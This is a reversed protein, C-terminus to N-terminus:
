GNIVENKPTISYKEGSVQDQNIVKPSTPSDITIKKSKREVEEFIPNAITGSLEFLFESVVQSKIVQDIAVGAAFFVPNASSAIWALVPLSSTLNPKYSLDYHLDGSILNTHGKMFLDGATGKMETNNTTVVGKQLQYDGQISSYFMGDSFIDRFDLTLKRVLSQLSLVSFVRAKDNIDALYGDDLRGSVNGNLQEIDFNHFGGQWNLDLNINAGSDKIISDYDLAQFETEIDEILLDAILSSESEQQNHRWQGSLTLSSKGRKALFDNLVITEQDLRKIKADVEGLNLNDIICSDCHFTIPPINAFINDKYAKTEIITEKHTLTDNEAMNTLEQKRQVMSNVANIAFLSEAAQEATNEKKNALQINLFEANIDMGQTLWDPYIKIQGRTEKANVELRWWDQKDLLNFSLNHLSQEGITLKDVSGRIRKPKPFLRHQPVLNPNKFTDIKPENVSAMIDSILPQWTAFDANALKTTIHFGDSPLAMKGRGLMLNARTFVTNDHDLVGTFQMEDALSVRVNSQAMQGDVKIVLRNVQGINKTYPTPLNFQTSSLDSNLEAQYSFGGQHHQYLSLEGQWDLNGQIYAQLNEPLHSLWNKEQWQSKLKINTDYYDRKDAGQISLQVPLEQWILQLNQTTIKDNKFNLQGFIDNFHMQPTQLRAQNGAFKINGSALAKANDNLPLTLQFDGSVEGSLKLQELVSGVSSQLSSQNMLAAIYDTKTSNIEADVTLISENGLDAIAAKVGTIDLGTLSGSRGTILMSNNTFNLNAFFETIAPWDEAFKFEAESLEADVTFIGSGDTFPFHNIPGNILVQADDIRGSIFAKNLYSILSDSMLPLPLYRGVLSADANSINALLSLHTEEEKPLTVELDASINIVESSLVLDNVALSRHNDNFNASVEASIKQYPFAAVFLENFDLEGQEASFDLALYQNIYSLKGSVNEVGPIGSSYRSNLQSFHSLVQLEGQQKRIFIDKVNGTLQMDVLKKRVSKKVIFLPSLSSLMALDINSVHINYDNGQKSFQSTFDIPQQNNHQWKLPTTFLSSAHTLEDKVLLLQGSQLSLKQPKNALLWHFSSPALNVQVRETDSNKLTLWASFNIDTATDNNNAVLINGLWPTVDIHNAQLFVEGTLSTLSDGFLDVNVQLNNASVGNFVVSGQAQHRQGTNLWQMNSISVSSVALEKKITILSDRISFHKIQNLFLDSIANIDADINADSYQNNNVAKSDDVLHSSWLAESLDIELGSLILDKSILKQQSLTEWFDLQLELQEISVAANESDLVDIKDIFIVPGSQQWKMTLTGITINAQSTQNIYDQVHLKYHHVHPLFLRLASIIVALLVLLIAATKYLRSLWLNLTSVINM